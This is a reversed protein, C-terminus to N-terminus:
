YLISDFLKSYAKAVVEEAYEKLVIERSAASLGEYNDHKIVYEIGLALDQFDKYAAIYGTEKHKVMEPIGGTEFGVVPVGCAMAELVTNPLNDELSPIVFLESANYLTIIKSVESISGLENLKFGLEVNEGKLIKGFSLVEVNSKLASNGKSLLNLAEKLYTFGKREDNTNMAGFLVYKKKPDLGLSEKAQQKNSPCYYNVDIPNPIHVVKCHKLLASKAALNALWQSPAVITLNAKQFMKQKENFHSKSLDSPGSYKLVPCNGCGSLYNKCDGTYHCGGTFLWMDHLHWVIPKKLYVLEKINKLSLFSNNIWHVNLIDANRVTFNYAINEGLLAPSYNASVALNRLCKNTIIYEFAFKFYGIKKLLWNSNIAFVDPENELQKEAVIMKISDEPYASKKLAKFLRFAAIAAGGIKDSTSIIALKM